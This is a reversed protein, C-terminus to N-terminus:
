PGTPRPGAPDRCPAGARAPRFADASEGVAFLDADAVPQDAMITTKVLRFLARSKSTLAGEPVKDM